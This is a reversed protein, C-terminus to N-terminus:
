DKQTNQNSQHLMKKKENREWRAQVRESPTMPKKTAAKVPDMGRKIRDYVTQYKINNSEALRKIDPTVYHSQREIRRDIMERTSMTAAEEYTLCTNALRWRLTTSDIGNAAAQKVLETKVQPTRPPQTIAREKEFSGCNFRQKVWAAPSGNAAAVEFDEPQLYFDSM